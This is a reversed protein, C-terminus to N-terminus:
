PQVKADLASLLKTLSAHAVSPDMTARLTDAYHRAAVEVARLRRIRDDLRQPDPKGRYGASAALAAMAFETAAIMERAARLEGCADGILRSDRIPIWQSARIAELAELDVGSM